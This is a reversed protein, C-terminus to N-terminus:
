RIKRVVSRFARGITPWIQKRETEFRLGEFDPSMMSSRGGYLYRGLENDGYDM